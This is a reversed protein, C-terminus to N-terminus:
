HYTANLFIQTANRCCAYGANEWFSFFQSGTKNPRNRLCKKIQGQQSSTVFIKRTDTTKCTFPACLQIPTKNRRINVGYKLHPPRRTIWIVLEINETRKVNWKRQFEAQITHNPKQIEIKM